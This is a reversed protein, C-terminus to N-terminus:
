LAIGVLAPRLWACPGMDRVAIRIFDATVYQSQLRAKCSSCIGTKLVCYNGFRDPEDFHILAEEPQNEFPSTLKNCHRCPVEKHQDKKKGMSPKVALM